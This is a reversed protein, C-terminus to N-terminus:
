RTLPKPHYVLGVNLFATGAHVGNGGGAEAGYEPARLDFHDNLRIDLGFLLQAAGSTVSTRQVIPTAGTFTASVVQNYSSHVVGGGIQFYPRLPNHHPVFGVRLGLGALVGGNDGPSGSSRADVGITARSQIPFNYFAGGGIGVTSHKFSLGSIGNLDSFGYGAYGVNAYVSTQAHASSALLGSLGLLCLATTSRLM